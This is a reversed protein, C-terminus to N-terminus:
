QNFVYVAIRGSPNMVKFGPPPNVLGYWGYGPLWWIWYIRVFGLQKAYSVASMVDGLHYDIINKQGSMSISAFGYFSEHVLLVSGEGMTANLQGLLKLADVSDQLPVTNALMSTSMYNVFPSGAFYTFPREPPQTMYGGCISAYPLLIAIALIVKLHKSQVSSLIRAFGGFALISLPVLLAFAWLYWLGFAFRPSIIPSIALVLVAMTWVVILSPRQLKAPLRIRDVILLPLIPAILFLLFGVITLVINSYSGFETLYNTFPSIGASSTDSWFFWVRVGQAVPFVNQAKQLVLFNWALFVLAPVSSLLLRGSGSSPKRRAAVQYFVCPLITLLVVQHALGTLVLLSALLIARPPSDVKPLLSLTLIALSIALMESFMGLSLGLVPFQIVVFFAGLLAVRDASQAVYKLYHYITLALLGHLVPAFIALVAYPNLVLAAPIMLLYVLPSFQPPYFLDLFLAPGWNRFHFLVPAYYAITNFGIPVPYAIADPVARVMFGAIFAAFYGASGVQAIRHHSRISVMFSTVGM